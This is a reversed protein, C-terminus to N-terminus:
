RVAKIVFGYSYEKAKLLYPEHPYAGWSTDGGLGRQALDVCLVVERRPTIDNTHRNKKTLGEDFDDPFNNLASVCIPQLGEIKIGTGKNNTLTLWRVDTKYGNEQPRTYPVYQDAVKSSYIGIQSAYNRDAYNEWPGRGYFEFNEYQKDLTMIMGFRPMEPLENAGAKYHINVALAGDASMTYVIQYDSAADKLFLDATVIAKGEEVKVEIKKVTLNNGATHWVSTKSAMGNGFDNDTPARWFNPSPNQNLCRTDNAKFGGILGSLKNITVEVGAANLTIRNNEDKVKPANGTATARTFYKGEGLKFQERAVEHGQPVVESGVRTFAFVNLFYESIPLACTQVGTM